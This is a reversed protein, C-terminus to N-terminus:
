LVLLVHVHIYDDGLTETRRRLYDCYCTWLDLYSQSDTYNDGVSKDLTAPFLFCQTSVHWTCNTCM